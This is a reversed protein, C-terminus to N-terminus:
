YQCTLTTWTITFPININIPQGTTNTYSFYYNNNQTFTGVPNFNKGQVTISNNPNPISTPSEFKLYYAHSENRLLNPCTGNNNMVSSILVKKVRDNDAPDIVLMYQPTSMLPTNSIILDGNIHVTAKAELTQQTQEFINKGIVHLTAKPTQTQIGVQSFSLIPLLVFLLKKM